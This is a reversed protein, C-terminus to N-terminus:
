PKVVVLQGDELGALIHVDKGAGLAALGRGAPSPLPIRRLEKVGDTLSLVAIAKRDVTPIVLEPRGDGDFDAAAANDLAARGLAHNSYGIAEHKLALKGDAWTWVQLVGQLHPTRVVAIDLKGDGDFDAVAAPALWRHREGIPPTEALVKWLGERKGIVTLASGKELYSKITVIEPTGDGDLDVLRPELDEFVAEAGSEVVATKTPVTRVQTSVGALPQKEAITISGADEIRGFAGHRYDTRPASLFVTLPGASQMRTGTVANRPAEPLPAEDGARAFRVQRLEGKDLHLAMGGSKDWVAVLPRDLPFKEALLPSTPLTRALYSQPARFEEVAFGLPLVAVTPQAHVPPCALATLGLGFAFAARRSMSGAM